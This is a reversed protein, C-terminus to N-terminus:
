NKEGKLAKYHILQFGENKDSLFYLMFSEEQDEPQYKGRYFVPIQFRVAIKTDRFLSAAIHGCLVNFYEKTFDEVDQFAVHESRMMRQTLRVLLATETCLALGSHANKEFITYVTCIDGHFPDVKGDLLVTKSLLIGSTKETVERTSQDYITHLREESLVTDL